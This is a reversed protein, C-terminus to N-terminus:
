GPCPTPWEHVFTGSGRELDRSASFLLTIDPAIALVVLQWWSAHQSIVVAIGLAAAVFGLAAYAIRKM